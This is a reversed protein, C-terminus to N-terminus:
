STRLKSMQGFLKVIEPLTSCVELQANKFIFLARDTGIIAFLDDIKGGVIIQAEAIVGFEALSGDGGCLLVADSGTGNTSDGSGHANVHLEFFLDGGELTNFGADDELGAEGGVGACDGGNKAFFVEDEGVFQVM